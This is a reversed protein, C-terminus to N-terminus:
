YYSEGFDEAKEPKRGLLVILIVLLVLFIIALVVTLVVITNSSSAGEVNMELPVTKVLNAGDFINVGFQYKGAEDSNAVVKVTTSSGAPVAVVSQSTKVVEGDTLVRYVKVNDTPNVILLEYVADEGANVSKVSSTVIVSETFDNKIVIEKVRTTETDDNKVTVELTYVGAKVDYPVNLNFKGVVTDDEDCDTSCNEINVLDGFWKPGQYVGLEVIKASVYVDDLDNYGMNKLVVEIPLDNGATISSPTTVSKIVANYSPRQVRMNITPLITKHDKGDIEIDLTLADSIDDKLEYPVELTLVKKYRYGAEVDFSTTIADFDVKEGEVSAEVTVDTDSVNSTFYVKLVFSEGAVVSVPASGYANMQDITVAYDTTIDAASVTVVLFMALVLACFSVMLNKTKM